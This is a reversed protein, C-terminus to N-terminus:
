PNAIAYAELTKFINIYVDKEKHLFEESPKESGKCNYVVTQKFVSGGDASPVVKVDHNISDLIGMLVDGEIVSYSYSYKSVDVSETKYKGSTFPIGDGFTFLKITGVDGNGEITEISKFYQPHLKPGLNDLDAFVKFVKDAPLQSAVEIEFTVSTM